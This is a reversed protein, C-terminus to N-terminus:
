RPPLSAYYAALAAAEAVTIDRALYRMEAHKRKGTKFAMIQNFLYKENQGALHPVETDPAIGDEGHCAACTAVSSSRPEAHAQEIAQGAALGAFGLCLLIRAASMRRTV